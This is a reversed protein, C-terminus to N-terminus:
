LIYRFSSLILSSLPELSLSTKPNQQGADLYGSNSFKFNDKGHLSTWVFPILIVYIDIKKGFPLIYIHLDDDFALINIHKNGPPTSPFPRPTNRTKNM